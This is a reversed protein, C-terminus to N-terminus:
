ETMLFDEETDWDPVVKISKELTKLQEAEQHKIYNGTDWKNNENTDYVIRVKYQGPPIEKFDISKLMTGALTLHTSQSKIIQKNENLLQVIYHQKKSFRINLTLHGLETVTQQKFSVSLSDNYNGEFDKIFSSDLKLKYSLGPKLNNTITISNPNTFRISLPEKLTDGATLLVSARRQVSLTDLWKDAKLTLMTNFTLQGNTINPSLILKNKNQWKTKPLTVRITDSANGNKHLLWLSDKVPSKYYLTLTDNIAPPILIHKNNEPLFSQLNNSNEDKNYILQLQGFESTLTKKLFLREPQEVFTQLSFSTDRNLRLTDKYFGISEPPGDYYGNKNIDSFTILRYQGAAIYNLEYNGDSGARTYYKPTQKFVLSDKDTIAFLGVLAGPEAQETLTNKIYGRIKLTDLKDGTSFVYEAQELINGERMDSISKGFHIRYTTNPLLDASKLKIRIKKGLSEIDPMTKFAPSIIVQNPIDKIQVYEDFQLIIEDSRFQSSRNEPTTQIIKPPTTDRPGGTLPTIQACQTLLLISLVLFIFGGTLRIM